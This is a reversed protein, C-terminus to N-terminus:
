RNSDRAEDKAIEVRDEEIKGVRVADYWRGPWKGSDVGFPVAGTAEKVRQMNLIETVMSDM